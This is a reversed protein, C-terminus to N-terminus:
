AQKMQNPHYNDQIFQPQQQKQYLVRDSGITFAFIEPCSHELLAKQFTLVILPDIVPTSQPGTGYIDQTPYLMKSNKRFRHIQNIRHPNAYMNRLFESIYKNSAGKM